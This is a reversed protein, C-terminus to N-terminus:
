DPIEGEMYSDVVFSIEENTLNMGDRKKKIIDVMRM